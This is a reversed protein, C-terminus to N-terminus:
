GIGTLKTRGRAFLSLVAMVPVLDPCDKLNFVGGKLSSPGKVTIFRATHTFRGGMKKLFGIIHGNSQPWDRGLNGKLVVKSPVLLAAALPFAALGYDSPVRFNKLGKFQQNGKIFYEKGEVKSRRAELKIEIGAKSLIRRTMTIYDGSVM